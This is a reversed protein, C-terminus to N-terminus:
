CVHCDLLDTIYQAKVIRREERFVELSVHPHCGFFVSQSIM